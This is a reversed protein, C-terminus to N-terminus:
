PGFSMVAALMLLDTDTNRPDTFNSYPSSAFTDPGLFYHTYNLIVYEKTKAASYFFLRPSIATYSGSDTDLNPIVRDYRFGVSMYKLVAAQIEAGYKFRNEDIDEAFAANPPPSDVHNFMGYVAMSVERMGLPRPTLSSFRFIHQFLITDITGSDNSPRINSRRDKEGFYIEKLSRGQGGHIVQLGDGLTMVNKGVVRSYGLYGNGLFDHDLHVDGGFTVLRSEPPPTGPLSVFNNNDSPTWSTMWHGSFKLWQDLWLGAHAHHVFTSGQPETGQGPFFDAENPGTPRGPETLLFPVVELKAGLGHELLLEVHDTLDVDVLLTEGMVHTRGFLYTGYYGSSTGRPGASGYANAFSGATIAIGGRSGFADPFKLTLYAQSIGGIQDLNRYGSDILTNTSVRVNAAVVPNGYTFRLSVSPNPAIAIYEWTGSSLGVIRPPIHPEVDEDLATSRGFGIRLPARVYGKMRLQWKKLSESYGQPEDRVGLLDAESGVDESNPPNGVSMKLPKLRYTTPAPEEGPPLEDQAVAESAFLCVATASVALRHLNSRM